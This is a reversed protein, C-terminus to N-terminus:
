YANKHVFGVFLTMILIRLDFLLSWNEIYFLDYEVRKRMKEPCDTEGRFGNVQAWGTIGPKIRHRSFFGAISKAYEINHPLAHPRPGVLAMSGQLVNFLQPLEDLSTRRLIRGVRTVRPDDRQAPHVSHDLGAAFMTRFKFVTFVKNNYGHRAQRFLVPGKSDLKIAIAIFLFLPVLALVMIGAIVRDEIEKGILRWDSLPKHAVDILPVSGICSFSKQGCRLGAFNCAFHINVPLQELKNIVSLLREDARLPLSVIIEDVRCERAFGLLHDVSGSVPFRLTSLSGRDGDAGDDFVGVVRNWPEQEQVLDECLRLAQDETGVIVINRTLRGFQGWKSLLYRM